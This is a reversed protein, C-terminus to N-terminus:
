LFAHEHDVCLHRKQCEAGNLRIFLVDETSQFLVIAEHRVVCNIVIPFLKALHRENELPWHDCRQLCGVVLVVQINNFAFPTSLVVHM